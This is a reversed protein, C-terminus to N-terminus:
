PRDTQGRKAIIAATIITGAGGIAIAIAGSIFNSARGTTVATTTAAAMVIATGTMVTVAAAAAIIVM